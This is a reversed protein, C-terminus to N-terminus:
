SFPAFFRVGVFTIVLSSLTYDASAGEHLVLGNLAIRLTSGLYAQDPLTYTRSATNNSGSLDAGTINLVKLTAM